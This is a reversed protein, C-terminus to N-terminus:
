NFALWAEHSLVVTDCDCGFAFSSLKRRGMEKKGPPYDKGCLICRFSVMKKKLMM